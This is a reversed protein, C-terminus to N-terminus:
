IEVGSGQSRHRRLICDFDVGSQDSPKTVDTYVYQSRLKHMEATELIRTVLDCSIPINSFAGSVASQM